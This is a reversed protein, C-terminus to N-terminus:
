EVEICVVIFGTYTLVNAAMPLASYHERGLVGCFEKGQM